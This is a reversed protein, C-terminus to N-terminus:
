LEAHPTTRTKQSQPKPNASEGLLDVIWLGCDVMSTDKLSSGQMRSPRNLLLPHSCSSGLGSVLSTHSLAINTLGAVSCLSRAAFAGAYRPPSCPVMVLSTM